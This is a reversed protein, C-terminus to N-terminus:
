RRTLRRSKASLVLADALPRRTRATADLQFEAVLPPPMPSIPSRFRRCRHSDSTEGIARSRYCPLRRSAPPSPMPPPSATSFLAVAVMLLVEKRPLRAWPPAPPAPALPPSPMPPPMATAMSPAKSVDDTLRLLLESIPLTAWPPLAALSGVAAVALAAAHEDAGGAPRGEVLRIDEQVKGEGAEAPPPPVLPSPMPPPRKTVVAPATVRWLVVTASFTAEVLLPLM